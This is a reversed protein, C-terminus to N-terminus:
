INYVGKYAVNINIEFRINRLFLYLGIIGIFIVYIYDLLVINRMIFDIASWIYNNSLINYIFAVYIVYTANMYLSKFNYEYESM